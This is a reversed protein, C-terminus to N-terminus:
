VPPFCLNARAESCANITTEFSFMCDDLTAEESTCYGPTADECDAYASYEYPCSQAICSIVQSNFCLVCTLSQTSTGVTVSIPPTTDATLAAQACASDTCAAVVSLTTATCRPFCDGVLGTAGMTCSGGGGGADVGPGGADVGPGGTDVGVQGDPLVIDGGDVMPGGDAGGGPGADIRFGGGGGRGSRHCGAAAVVMSCLLAAFVLFRIGQTM